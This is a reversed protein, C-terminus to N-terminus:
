KVINRYVDIMQDLNNDLNYLRKVRDRGAKGMKVRLEENLLLKEIANALMQVNKPPVVFGTEGDEVVEPLGGVNSVVVPIECASAEVVSVGFSESDVISPFVEIDIQNHYNVVQDHDVKGQFTTLKEIGLKNALKILETEKTGGGVILLKLNKHKRVLLEFVELLYKIGYKDELTKVTGIVIEANKKEKKRKQFISLDVGFPTVVIPKNTYRSTEKAMIHSTSLIYDARNLNFQIIRKHLFSRQPFLYVDNGWVSIILPHFGSLVGMIGYSTAFHAHVIDPVYKSILKKINPITKLFIAKSLAGASKQFIDPSVDGHEIIVNNYKEYAQINEVDSLSYLIITIGREAL